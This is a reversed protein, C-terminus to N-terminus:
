QNTWNIVVKKERGLKQHFYKEYLRKYKKYFKESMKKGNLIFGRKQSLNFKLKDQENILKDKILQVRMYSIFRELSEENESRERKLAAMEREREIKEEESERLEIEKERLEHERRSREALEKKIQKEVEILEMEKKRKKEEERILQIEYKQKAKEELRQGLDKEEKGFYFKKKNKQRYYAELQELEKKKEALEREEKEEKDKLVHEKQYEIIAKEEARKKEEFERQRKETLERIDKKGRDRMIFEDIMKNVLDGGAQKHTISYPDKGFEDQFLVSISNFKDVVKMRYGGKKLSIEDNFRFIPGWSELKKKKLHWVVNGTEVHVLKVKKYYGNENTCVGTIKINSNEPIEFGMWIEPNRGGPSKKIINITSRGTDRNTSIGDKAKESGGTKDAFVATSFILVFMSIGLFSAAFFGESFGSNNKKRGLVRQIRNMLRNKSNGAALVAKPVMSVCSQVESLALAFEQSSGSLEVAIDDCSNEREMRIISSIWRVGPHYFYVIDIFIQFMNVLYDRRHIHALKGPCIEISLPIFIFHNRLRGRDPLLSKQVQLPANL